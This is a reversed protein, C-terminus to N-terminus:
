QPIVATILNTPYVAEHKKVQRIWSECLASSISAERINEFNTADKKSINEDLDNGVFYLCSAFVRQLMLISTHGRCIRSCTLAESNEVISSYKRFEFIFKKAIDTKNEREWSESNFFINSDTISFNNWNIKGAPYTSSEINKASLSIAAIMKIASPLIEKFLVLAKYKFESGTLYSFADAMIHDDIFYNEISHGITWSLNGDNEHENMSDQIKENINFKLYERDCFFYLNQHQSSNKCAEHIHFIKERNNKSTAACRGKINEAIDIKIKIDGLVASILNAIHSKDEKGEVLIRKKSSMKVSALYQEIDYKVDM